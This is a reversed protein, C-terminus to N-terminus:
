SKYKENVKDYMETPVPSSLTEVVPKEIDWNLHGKKWVYALGGMLLGIFVVLEVLLFGVWGKGWLAISTADTYAMAWPYLLIVEVEFLM